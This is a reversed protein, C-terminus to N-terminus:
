FESDLGPQDWVWLSGGAEAKQTSPNFVHVVMGLKHSAEM